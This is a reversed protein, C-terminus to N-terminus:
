RDALQRLDSLEDRRALGICRLGGRLMRLQEANSTAGDMARYLLHRTASADFLAGIYQTALEWPLAALGPADLQLALGDIPSSDEYMSAPISLGITLGGLLARALHQGIETWSDVVQYQATRFNANVADFIMSDPTAWVEPTVDTSVILKRDRV